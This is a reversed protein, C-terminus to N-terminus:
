TSASPFLLHNFSGSPNVIGSGWRIGPTWTHESLAPARGKGLTVQGPHSHERQQWEWCILAHMVDNSLLVSASAWLPQDSECTFIWTHHHEQLGLAPSTSDPPHRLSM